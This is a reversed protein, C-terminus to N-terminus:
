SATPCAKAAAGRRLAMEIIEGVTAQFSRGSKEACLMFGVGEALDPNPNVELVFPHGTNDIRLDIRAYDRADTVQYAALAAAKLAIIGSATSWCRASARPVAASAKM